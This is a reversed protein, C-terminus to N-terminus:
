VNTNTAPTGDVFDKETLLLARAYLYQFLGDDNELKEEVYEVRMIIDRWRIKDHWLLGHRKRTFLHAIRNPPNNPEVAQGNLAGVQVSANLPIPVAAWSCLQGGMTGKTLTVPYVFVVEKYMLDSDFREKSRNIPTRLDYRDQKYM